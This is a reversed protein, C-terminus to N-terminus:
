LNEEKKNQKVLTIGATILPLTSLANNVFNKSGNEGTLRNFLISNFNQKMLPILKNFQIQSEDGYIKKYAPIANTVKRMFEYGRSQMETPKAFYRANEGVNPLIKQVASETIEPFLSNNYKVARHILPFQQQFYKNLANTNEVGLGFTAGHGFEHIFTSVAEEYPINPNNLEIGQKLLGDKGAKWYGAIAKGSLDSKLKLDKGLVEYPHKLQLKKIQSLLQARLQPIEVENFGAKLARTQWNNNNIRNIHWSRAQEFAKNIQDTTLPNISTQNGVVNADSLIKTSNFNLKKPLHMGLMGIGLGANLANSWTLGNDKIDKLALGGHAVGSALGWLPNTFGMAADIASYGTQGATNQARNVNSILTQKNKVDTATLPATWPNNQPTVSIEPLNYAMGTKPRINVSEPIVSYPSLGKIKLKNDDENM